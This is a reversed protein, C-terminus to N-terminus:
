NVKVTKVPAALTVPKYKVLGPKIEAVIAIGVGANGNAATVMALVMGQPQAVLACGRRTLVQCLETLVEAANPPEAVAPDLIVKTEESM